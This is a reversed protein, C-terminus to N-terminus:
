GAMVKIGSAKYDMFHDADPMLADMYEKSGAFEVWDDWSRVWIQSCADFDLVEMGLEQLKKKMEPSQYVQM